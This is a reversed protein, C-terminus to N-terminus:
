TPSLNKTIPSRLVQEFQNMHNHNSQEHTPNVSYGIIDPM